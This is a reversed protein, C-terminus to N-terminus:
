LSQQSRIRLAGLAMVITCVGAKKFARQLGYLGESTAKGQGSQCASLVVMETGSLDLRAINNTICPLRMLNRKNGFTKVLIG